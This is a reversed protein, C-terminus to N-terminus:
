ASNRIRAINVVASINLIPVWGPVGIFTVAATLPVSYEPLHAALSRNTVQMNAAINPLEHKAHGKYKEKHTPEVRCAPLTTQQQKTSRGRARIPM